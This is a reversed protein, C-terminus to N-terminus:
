QQSIMISGKGERSNESSRQILVMSMYEPVTIGISQMMHNIVENKQPKEFSEAYFVEVKNIRYQTIVILPLKTGRTFDTKSFALSREVYYYVATLKAL